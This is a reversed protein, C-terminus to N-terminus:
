WGSIGPTPKLVVDGLEEGENVAQGVEAAHDEALIGVAVHGLPLIEDLVLYEDQETSLDPPLSHYAPSFLSATHHTLPDIMIETRRQTYKVNNELKGTYLPHEPM